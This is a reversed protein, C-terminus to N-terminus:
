KRRGHPHNERAPSELIGERELYQGLERINEVTPASLVESGGKPGKVLVFRCQPERKMMEGIESGNDNIILAQGGHGVIESIVEVKAKNVTVVRDVHGALGSHEVKTRQWQENGLTLLVLENGSHRLGDLLEVAGPFLYEGTRTLLQRIEERARSVDAVSALADTLLQLHVEPDYEYAGEHRNVTARYAEEYRDRSVGRSTFIDALAEKFKTTDLLTYDLDFVIRM